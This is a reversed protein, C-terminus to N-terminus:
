SFGEEDPLRIDSLRAQLPRLKSRDKGRFDLFDHTSGFLGMAYGISALDFALAGIIQPSSCSFVM